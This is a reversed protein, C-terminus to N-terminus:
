AKADECFRIMRRLPACRGCRLILQGRFSHVNTVTRVRQGDHIVGAVYVPLNLGPPLSAPLHIKAIAEGTPDTLGSFGEFIGPALNSTSFLFLDDPVLNLWEGQPMRIGGGRLFSCALQYPRGNDGSKRSQLRVQVTTGPAGNGQCVLRRSGYIALGGYGSCISTYVSLIRGQPDIHYVGHGGRIWATGDGAFRAASPFWITTTLPTLVGTRDVFGVTSPNRRACLLYDGTNQDLEIDDLDLGGFVSLTHVQGQLDVRCAVGFKTIFLLPATATSRDILVDRMPLPPVAPFATAVMVTRLVGTADDMSWLEPPSALANAILWTAQHDLVLGDPQFNLAASRVAWKGTADVSALFGTRLTDRATVLLDRNAADMTIDTVVYSSVGGVLTTAQGTTPDLVVVDTGNTVILDGDRPQALVVSPVLLSLLLLYSFTRM